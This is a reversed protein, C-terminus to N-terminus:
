SESNLMISGKITVLPKGSESDVEKMIRWKCDGTVFFDFKKWWSVMHGKTLNVITSIENRYSMIWTTAFYMNLTMTSTIVSGPWWMQHKHCNHHGQTQTQTCVRILPVIPGVCVIKLKSKIKILIIDISLIYRYSSPPAGQHGQIAPNKSIIWTLGSVPCLSM